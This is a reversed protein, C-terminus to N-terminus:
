PSSSGPIVLSITRQDAFANVVRFLSELERQASLVLGTVNLLGVAQTAELLLRSTQRLALTVVEATANGETRIQVQLDRVLPLIGTARAEDLLGNAKDVTTKLLSNSSWLNFTIAGVCVTSLFVCALIWRLAGHIDRLVAGEAKM